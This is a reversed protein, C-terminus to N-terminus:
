RADHQAVHRRSGAHVSGLPSGLRTRDPFLRSRAGQQPQLSTPPLQPVGQSCIPPLWSWQLGMLGHAAAAAAPAARAAAASSQRSGTARMCTTPKDNM